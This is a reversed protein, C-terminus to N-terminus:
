SIHPPANQLNDTKKIHSNFVQTNIYHCISTSITHTEKADTIDFSVSSKDLVCVMCSSADHEGKLHETEHASALVSSIVLLFSILIIKLKM